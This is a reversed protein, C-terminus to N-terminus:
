RKSEKKELKIPYEASFVTGNEESTTFTVTGDLFSSLLKMSYTGLGRDQGKTSFSRSFIQLQVKRPIFGPNQVWFKINKEKVSCGLTVRGNKPTSELANKTMNSLIRRLLIRDSNLEVNEPNPAIRLIKGETIDHNGYIKMIDDLLDISSFTSLFIELENNEANILLRQSQIEEILNHTIREAMKLLEESNQEDKFNILLDLTGRLATATNLVDHFFIRELFFRWKEHHIDQFIVITFKEKGIILPSVWLRLDFATHDNGLILRSDRVVFEGEQSDLIANVVGCYTCSESTGCGGREESAHICGLLEGPRKGIESAFDELGTFELAGKNVYVIQRYNNVILFIAPIRGLFKNLLENYQFLKAQREIEHLNIREAPAFKTNHEENSM